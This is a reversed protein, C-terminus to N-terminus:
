PNDAVVYIVPPEAGNVIHMGNPKANQTYLV